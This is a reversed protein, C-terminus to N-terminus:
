NKYHIIIKYYEVEEPNDIFEIVIKNDFLFLREKNWHGFHAIKGDDGNELVGAKKLEEIFSEKITESVKEIKIQEWYVKSDITTASDEQIYNKFQECYNNFEGKRGKLVGKGKSAVITTVWFGKELAMGSITDKFKFNFILGREIRDMSSFKFNTSDNMYKRFDVPYDYFHRILSAISLEKQAFLNISSFLLIVTLIKKM